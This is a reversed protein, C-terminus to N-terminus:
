GLTTPFQDTQSALLGNMRSKRRALGALLPAACQISQARACTTMPYIIWMLVPGERRASM